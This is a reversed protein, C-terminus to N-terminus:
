PNGWPRRNKQWLITKPIEQFYIAAIYLFDAFLIMFKKQEFFSGAKKLPKRVIM